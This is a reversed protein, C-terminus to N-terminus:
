QVTVPNQERLNNLVFGLWMRAETACKLAFTMQISLKESSVESPDYNLETNVLDDLFGQILDRDQNCLFLTSDIGEPLNTEEGLENFTDQTPPIGEVTDSVKYNEGISLTGKVQGLWAKAMQMSRWALTYEASQKNANLNQIIMDAKVRLASIQEM